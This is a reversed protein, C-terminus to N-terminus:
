ADDPRGRKEGPVKASEGLTERVYLKAVAVVLLVTLPAAFIFGLPGFVVGLAVVSFIALAPPLALVQRAVLPVIANSEIQQVVVYVLLAWLAMEPGLSLAILIGPIAAVIPGLYPIFELLGAILGLALPAPVGILWLGLGTLVGVATMTILQGFLWLRLARESADIVGAIRERGNEPFLKLFGTKYVDPNGALYLGGFAVLLLQVVAGAALAGFQTIRAAIVQVDPASGEMAELIMAGIQTSALYEQASEWAQPLRKFLEGLQDRVENGFLWAGGLLASLVLAVAVGLSLTEGLPTHRAIPTAIARLLIGILSAGFILLIVDAVRWLFLALATLALVVLVRGVFEHLTLPSRDM